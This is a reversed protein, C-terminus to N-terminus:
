LILHILRLTSSLLEAVSLQTKRLSPKSGSKRFPRASPAKRRTQERGTGEVAQERLCFRPGAVGRGRVAIQGTEVSTCV